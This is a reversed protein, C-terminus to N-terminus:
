DATRYLSPAPPAAPLTTPAKLSFARRGRTWTPPLPVMGASRRQHVLPNNPKARTRKTTRTAARHRASAARCHRRSPTLTRRHHFALPQRRRRRCLAGSLRRWQVVTGLERQVQSVCGCVCCSPASTAAITTVSFTASILPMSCSNEICMLGFTHIHTRTLRHPLLGSFSKCARNFSFCGLECLCSRSAVEVAKTSPRQKQPLLSRACVSLLLITTRTQRAKEKGKRVTIRPIDRWGERASGRSSERMGDQKDEEATTERVGEGRHRHCRADSCFSM